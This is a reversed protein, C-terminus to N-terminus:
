HSSRGLNRSLELSCPGAFREAIGQLREESTGSTSVLELRGRRMDEQYDIGEAWLRTFAAKLNAKGLLPLAHLSERALIREPAYLASRDRYYPVREVAFALLERLRELREDWATEDRFRHQKRRVDWESLDQNLLGLEVLLSGLETTTPELNELCSPPSDDFALHFGTRRDFLEFGLSPCPRLEVSPHLRLSNPPLHNMTM